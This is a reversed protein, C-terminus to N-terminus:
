YLYLRNFTTDSSIYIITGSYQFLGLGLTNLTDVVGQISPQLLPTGTPVPYIPTGFVEINVLTVGSFTETAINWQYTATPQSGNPDQDGGLISVNQIFPSNNTLRLNITDNIGEM